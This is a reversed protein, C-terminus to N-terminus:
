RACSRRASRRCAALSRRTPRRTPGRRHQKTHTLTMYRAGLRHFMRLDALSNDISHRGGHRHAVRDKGGQPDARRRGRDARARVDRSVQAGDPPRHRDARADRHRRGAGAIRGPRLGVLVARRGGEKLRAIDTMISPQPKRHRAQRTRARITSACRGRTTTTATSSCRKSRHLARARDLLAADSPQQFTLPLMAFCWWPVFALRNSCALRISSASRSSQDSKRLGVQSTPYAAIPKFASM